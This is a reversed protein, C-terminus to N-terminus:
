EAALEACRHASRDSSLLMVQGRSLAAAFGLLANYRDECLNLVHSREPLRAALAAVDALFRGCTVPGEPRRFVIDTTARSTLPATDRGDNWADPSWDAGLDPM